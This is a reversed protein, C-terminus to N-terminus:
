NEQNRTVTRQPLSMSIAQDLGILNTKPKKM